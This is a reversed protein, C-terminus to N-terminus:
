KTRVREQVVRERGRSSRDMVSLTEVSWESGSITKSISRTLEELLRDVNGGHPRATVALVDLLVSM